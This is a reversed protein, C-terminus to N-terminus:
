CFLAQKVNRVQTFHECSSWNILKCFQLDDNPFKVNTDRYFRSDMRKCDGRFKDPM